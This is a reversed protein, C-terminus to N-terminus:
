GLTFYFTAGQGPKSQAWIRGGHRRIVRQVTALGVGTGEFEASTHLRQFPGFLKHAREPDFGAGNDEVYFTQVGDIERAGFLIRADARKSTFKWANNILNELAVGILNPDGNAHLGDEIVVDVQRQPDRMRLRGIIARALGSMDVREVDLEVRAVRSLRLMDDVLRLLRASEDKILKLYRNTKEDRPANGDLLIQLLGEISGLPGRLDHSVSYSFAELEQTAGEATEKARKLEVNHQILEQNLKRLKENAERFGALAMEFTGLAEALFTNARSVSTADLTKPLAEHHATTIDVISRKEVLAKRGIEYAASLTAEGGKDIHELLAKGYEERLSDSV